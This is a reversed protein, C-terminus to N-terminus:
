KWIDEWLLSWVWDWWDAPLDSASPITSFPLPWFTLSLPWPCNKNKCPYKELTTQPNRLVYIQPYVQVSVSLSPWVLHSGLRTSNLLSQHAAEGSLHRSSVIANSLGEGWVQCLYLDCQTRGGIAVALGCPIFQQCALARPLPWGGTAVWSHTMGGGKHVSAVSEGEDNPWGQLASKPEWDALVPQQPDSGLSLVGQQWMASPVALVEATDGDEVLCLFSPSPHDGNSCAVSNEQTWLSVFFNLFDQQGWSRKSGGQLATKKALGTLLACAATPYSHPLHCHTHINVQHSLAASPSIPINGGARAQQLM